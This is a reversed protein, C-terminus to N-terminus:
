ITETIHANFVPLPNDVADLISKALNPNNFADELELLTNKICERRELGQPFSLTGSDIAKTIKDLEFTFHEKELIKDVKAEIRALQVSLETYAEETRM